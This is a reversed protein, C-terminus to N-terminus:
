GLGGRQDVAIGRSVLRWANDGGNPAAIRGWGHDRRAHNGAIRAGGLGIFIRQPADIRHGLRNRRHCRHHQDFLALYLQILRDRIEDRRELIHRHQDIGGLIEGRARDCRRDRDAMQHRMGGPQPVGDDGRARQQLFIFALADGREAGIRLYLCLQPQHARFAQRFEGIADAFQWQDSFWAGFPAIRDPEVHQAAHNFHGAAHRKFGIQLLM